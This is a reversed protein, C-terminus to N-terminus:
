GKKPITDTKVHLVPLSLTFTSGKGFESKVEVTGGMMEAFHKTLTLGIGLGSGDECFTISTDAQTMFPLFLKKQQEDTMGIGNDIVDFVMWEGNARTQPNVKFCITGRETFKAANSLLSLLMWRLKTIDTQMEGLGKPREVELANAKKEVMPQVTSVIEDISIDLKFHGIYLDMQGAELKLWDLVDNIMGWLLRGAANIKQLDPILDEQELDEADEILIESYGVIANVPSRLDHRKKSSFRIQSLNSLVLVDNIMGLFHQAVANIKQLDSILDDQGLDQAKEMLM